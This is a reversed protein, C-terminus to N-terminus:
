GLNILGLGNLFIVSVAAPSIYRLVFRWANFLAENQINAEKKVMDSSAFWGVFIAILLGGLPLM